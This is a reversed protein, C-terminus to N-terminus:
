FSYTLRHARNVPLAPTEILRRYYLDWRPPLTVKEYFLRKSLIDRVRLPRSALGFLM